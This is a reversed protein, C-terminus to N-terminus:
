HCSLRFSHMVSEISWSSHMGYFLVPVEGASQGDIKVRVHMTRQESALTQQLAAQATAIEKEKDKAEKERAKVEAPTGGSAATLASLSAQHPRICCCSSDISSMLYAQQDFCSSSCQLFQFLMFPTSHRVQLAQLAEIQQKAADSAMNPTDIEIHTQKKVVQMTTTAAAVTESSEASAPQSEESASQESESPSSASSSEPAAVAVTELVETTVLKALVPRGAVADDGSSPSSAALDATIHCRADLHDGRIILHTGGGLAACVPEARTVKARNEAFFPFDLCCVIFSCCLLSICAVFLISPM